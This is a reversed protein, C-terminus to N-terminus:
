LMLLGSSHEFEPSVYTATVIKTWYEQSPVSAFECTGLSRISLLQLLPDPTCRYHLYSYYWWSASVAQLGLILAKSLNAVVYMKKHAPQINRFQPWVAELVRAAIVWTVALLSCLALFFLCLQTFEQDQARYGDLGLPHLVAAFVLDTIARQTDWWPQWLLDHGGDGSM